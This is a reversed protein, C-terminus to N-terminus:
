SETLMGHLAAVGDGTSRAHMVLVGDERALEWSAWACCEREVAVLESLEQEVAPEDRFTTRLGDDTAVRDLGADARLKQWRDAQAALDAGTLTCAVIPALETM